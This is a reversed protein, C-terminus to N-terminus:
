RVHVFTAPFDQLEIKGDQECTGCAKEAPGYGQTFNRQDPVTHEKGDDDERHHHSHPASQM